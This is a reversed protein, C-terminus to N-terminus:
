LPFILITRPISAHVAPLDKYLLYSWLSVAVNVIDEMDYIKNSIFSKIICIRPNNQLREHIFMLSIIKDWQLYIKLKIRSFVDSVIYVVMRSKRMSTLNGDSPLVVNHGWVSRVCSIWYFQVLALLRLLLQATACSKARFIQRQLTAHTQPTTFMASGPSLWYWEMMRLAARGKL